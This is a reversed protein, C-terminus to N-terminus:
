LNELVVKWNMEVSLFDVFVEVDWYVYKLDIIEFYDFVGVVIVRIIIKVKISLM